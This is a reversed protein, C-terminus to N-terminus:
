RSADFPSPVSICLSSENGFRLSQARLWLGYWNHGGMTNRLAYAHWGRRGCSHWEDITERARGQYRDRIIMNPPPCDGARISSNVTDIPIELYESIQGASMCRQMVAM